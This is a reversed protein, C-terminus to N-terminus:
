AAQAEDNDLMADKNKYAYLGFMGVILISCILSILYGNKVSDPKFEFVIEHQGAPVKLARLIYNARIHEVPNGDITVKWGKDPGYWVESFIALQESNSNSTYSLRNPAYDTLSISGEKTLNLGSVYSEFEKHIAAEGLPDIENLANIEADANPVIRFSNVFWANGYAATNRQVEQSNNQGNLIFYKTNLMNLVNMNNKSIHNDIIDQYRQLKAAHYGGITKHHYSSTASEFTPITLDLVRYHKDQDKLIQEDVPRLKFNNKFTRQSVYDAPKLYKFNVSILDGLALFGIGLIVYEKKLKNKFFGWLLGLSILMLLAVKISSSRMLSARDSKLIDASIGLQEYRADAASSMDSMGPGIFAIALCLAIIGGAPYLVKKFDLKKDKLIVELGLVALLPVIIATVSLISNPTRFKNYLPVYDFFFRSLIEFNKGMSLLATLVFATIIWWKLAGKKIFAGLVFLFFVIGGFYIPGSTFPLSGWYMPAQIGARTNVGKKRLEKVFKSDSGVKEASSGGVVMPIFSQLIDEPGNSWSMAYDWSLGEVKSSSFNSGTQELIPKGRMTDESYEMVPLFKSTACGVGIILGVMLFAGIRSLAKIEKAKIMEVAKIIVYPLLIIGLYYTMQPHDNKLNLAMGLAFLSTGLIYKRRFCTIVGAIVLPSSMVTAIKTMHGANILVINNTSFAFMMSGFIAILPSVGLVLLLIYFSIMGMLFYGPEYPMGARIIKNVYDILDLPKKFIIYYTPMGGFMSNTWYSSEGTEKKYDLIEKQAAKINVIDTGQVSKGELRPYFNIVSIAIFAAIAVLHIWNKSFFKKLM